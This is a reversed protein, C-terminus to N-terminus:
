RWFKPFSTRQILLNHTHCIDASVKELMAHYIIHCTAPGEQFIDRKVSLLENRINDSKEFGALRRHVAINHPAAGLLQIGIQTPAVRFIQQVMLFQNRRFTPPTLVVENERSRDPPVTTTVPADRIQEPTATPPTQGDTPKPADPVGTSTENRLYSSGQDRPFTGRKLKTSSPSKM